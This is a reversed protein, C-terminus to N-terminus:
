RVTVAKRPRSGRWSGSPHAIADARAEIGVPEDGAAREHEPADRQLVISAELAVRVRVDDAMGQDIREETGRREAVDAIEERRVIRPEGPGGADVQELAGPCLDCRGAVLEDVAVGDDDCLRRPDRRM